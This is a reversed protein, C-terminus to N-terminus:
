NELVKDLIWNEFEFVSTFVSHGGDNCNGSMKGSIGSAIGVLYHQGAMEFYAPSGSDGKCMSDDKSNDTSYVRESKLHTVSHYTKIKKNKYSLVSKIIDGAKLEDGLFAINLELAHGEFLILAIDNSVVKSEWEEHIIIKYNSKRKSNIKLKRYDEQACHAATLYVGRALQVAHCYLGNSNAIINVSAISIPDKEESCSSIFLFTLVMIFSIRQMDGGLFFLILV